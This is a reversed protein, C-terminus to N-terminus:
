PVVEIDNKFFNRVADVEGTIGSSSGSPKNRKIAEKQAARKSGPEKPEVVRTDYRDDDSSWEDDEKKSKKASPGLLPNIFDGEDDSEDDDSGDIHKSAAAKTAREEELDDDNESDSEEGAATDMLERNDLKEDDSEDMKRQRQLEVIAKDKIEKKAERKTKLMKYEKNSRIQENLEEEMRNVRKVDDDVDSDDDDDDEENNTMKTGGDTLYRYKRETDDMNEEADDEVHKVHKYMNELGIERVKEWTKKDLTLEDDNELATSAIVSM